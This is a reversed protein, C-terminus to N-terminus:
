ALDYHWTMLHSARFPAIDRGPISIGGAAPGERQTSFTIM